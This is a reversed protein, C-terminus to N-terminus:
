GELVRIICPCESSGPPCERPTECAAVAASFEPFEPCTTDRPRTAVIYDEVGGRVDPPEGPRQLVENFLRLGDAIEAYQMDEAAAEAALERAHEAERSPQILDAAAWYGCALLALERAPLAREKATLAETTTTSEANGGNSGDCAGALTLASIGVALMRWHAGRRRITITEGQADADPHHHQNADKTM